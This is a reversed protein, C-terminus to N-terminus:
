RARKFARAKSNNKKGACSLFLPFHNRLTLKLKRTNKGHPVPNAGSQGGPTKYGQLSLVSRDILIRFLAVPIRRM